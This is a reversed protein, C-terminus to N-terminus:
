EVRDESAGVAENGSQVGVVGWGPPFSSSDAKMKPSRFRLLPMVLVGAVLVGAM